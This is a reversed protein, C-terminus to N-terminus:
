DRLLEPVRFAMLVADLIRGAGCVGAVGLERVVGLIGSALIAMGVVGAARTSGRRDEAATM